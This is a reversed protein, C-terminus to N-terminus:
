DGEVWDLFQYEPERLTLGVALSNKYRRELIIGVRTSEIPLGYVSYDNTQILREEVLEKGAGVDVMIAVVGIFFLILGVNSLKKSEIISGGIALGLGIVFLIMGIVVM